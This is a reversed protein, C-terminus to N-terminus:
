SEFEVTRMRNASMGGAPRRALRHALRRAAFGAGAVFRMVPGFSAAAVPGTFYLGPVSSEFHASLRPSGGVLRLQKAIDSHLFSLRRVDVYYGTAAIVHDFARSQKHGSADVIHLQVRDGSLVVNEIRCGLLTPIAEAREKMFWGGSPGLHTRAIQLRLADPLYRFLWPMDVCLRSRWGPGIDSLPERLRQWISHSASSWPMGFELRDKRVIMDVSANAERLLVAIDIASSGGGVVAIKRDKFKTLDRHDASHSVLALPLRRFPAPLQRFYDLGVALVVSRSSLTRGSQLQLTFGAKSKELSILVDEELNPAFRRQFALGYACFAELPIPTDIDAFPINQQQYFHRITLSRDPDHLSSAFGPSKLLMGEPMHNLWSYM